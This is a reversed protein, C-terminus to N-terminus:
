DTDELGCGYVCWLSEPPYKGDHDRWAIHMSGCVKCQMEGTYDDNLNIKVIQQPKNSFQIYEDERENAM